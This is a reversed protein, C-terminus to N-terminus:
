LWGPPCSFGEDTWPAMQSIFVKCLADLTDGPGVAPPLIPPWSKTTTASGRRKTFSGGTPATPSFDVETSEEFGAPMVEALRKSAAPAEDGLWVFEFFDKFMMTGDGSDRWKGPATSKAYARGRPEPEPQGVRFAETHLRADGVREFAIVRLTYLTSSSTDVGKLGSVGLLEMTVSGGASLDQEVKTEAIRLHLQCDIGYTSASEGNLPITLGEEAAGQARTGLQFGAISRVEVPNNGLSMGDLIAARVISVQQSRLEFVLAGWNRCCCRHAAIRCLEWQLRCVSRVYQRWFRVREQRTAEPLESHEAAITLDSRGWDFAKVTIRPEESLESVEMGLAMSSGIWQQPTPLEIVAEVLRAMESITAWLAGHAHAESGPGLSSVDLWSALFDSARLRQMILRRVAKDGLLNAGPRGKRAEVSALMLEEMSKPPEEIGELRFGEVASNTLQDIAANKWSNLWRKGKWGAVSTEEGMKIDLLRQKRFGTRLNELLLLSRVEGGGKKPDACTLRAIGPCDMAMEAFAGWNEDIEAVGRLKEYFDIEDLAHALDKGIFKEPDTGAPVKDPKYHVRFFAATGGSMGLPQCPEEFLGILDENESAKLDRRESEPTFRESTARPVPPSLPSLPSTPSTAEVSGQGEGGKSLFDWINLMKREKRTVSPVSKGRRSSTGQSGEGGWAKTLSPPASGIASTFYETWDKETSERGLHPGKMAGSSPSAGSAPDGSSTSGSATAATKPGAGNMSGHNAVAQSAGNTELGAM